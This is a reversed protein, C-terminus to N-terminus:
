VLRRDRVLMSCAYRIADIAHNDRDPLAGTPEGDPTLEYSYTSLEEAALRCSPDVVIAARHQLWRVGSRVSLAATKRVGRARVGLQRFDEVSKPEASDCLVDAFPEPEGGDVPEAMRARVLEASEPNTLGVGSISDLVYLTRTRPVYGVKVWCFPDRAFGWDVGYMTMRITAREEEGVERVEARPFVENGYGVDEGLYEHLYAEEDVARLAEADEIVQDPLWGPPMDTYNAKYVTEGAARLERIRANAWSDRSRPPNFSHFRFFPAGAPAGRTVSQYVRRIEAMGAFQDAEEIWLYAYYTGAPAKLAKTKATNDGGRFTVVQGTSRRRIRIPSVTCEFEDEVGLMRIAWLMQEYVGERIDKGTKVMVLASRDPHRMIGRVIELSVCSSKGSARGGYTWFDGGLGACVARHMPVFPDAILLAFDREFEPAGDDSDDPLLDVLTKGLQTVGSIAGRDIVGYDTKFELNALSRDFAESMGAIVEARSKTAAAAAARRLERLRGSVKPTAELECARADVTADRWKASNPFAERYARRQSLGRMRAQCYLEQNQTIRDGKMGGM